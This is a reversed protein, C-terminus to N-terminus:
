GVGGPYTEWMVGLHIGGSGDGQASCDGLKIARAM